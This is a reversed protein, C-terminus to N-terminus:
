FESATETVGRPVIVNLFIRYELYCKKCMCDCKKLIYSAMLVREKWKDGILTLIRVWDSQSSVASSCCSCGGICQVELM